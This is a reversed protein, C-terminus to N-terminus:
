FNIIEEKLKNLQNDLTADLQYDGVEVRYGATVRGDNKYDLVVNKGLQEKLFNVLLNEDESSLNGDSGRVTGRLFGKENDDIVVIDKYILPFISMRKESLLFNVVNKTIDSVGLKDLVSKTVEMKEEVTFVDMFLLTELNNNSNIAEQFSTLEKVVDCNKDKGLQYISKAYAYSVATDSM